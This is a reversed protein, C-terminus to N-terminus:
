KGSYIFYSQVKPPERFICIQTLRTRLYVFQCLASGPAINQRAFKAIFSFSCHVPCHKQAENEQCLASDVVKLDGRYVPLGCLWDGHTGRYLGM